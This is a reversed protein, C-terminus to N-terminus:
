GFFLLNTVKSLDSTVYLTHGIVLYSISASICCPEQYRCLHQFVKPDNELHGPALYRFGVHELLRYVGASESQCWGPLQLLIWVESYFFM